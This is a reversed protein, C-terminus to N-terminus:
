ATKTQNRAREKESVESGQTKDYAPHNEHIVKDDDDDDDVDHKPLSQNGGYIGGFGEEDCRTAYAEGFSDSIVDGTKENPNQAKKQQQEMSSSDQNEPQISQTKAQRFLRVTTKWCISSPPSPFTSTSPVLFPHSQFRHHAVRFAHIM